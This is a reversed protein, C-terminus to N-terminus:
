STTVSVVGRASGITILATYTTATSMAADTVPLNGNSDTTLNTKRVVLAGTTPNYVDVTVNATTAWVVGANNALATLTFNATAVNSTTFQVGTSWAGNGNANIARFQITYTTNASLGSLVQPSASATFTTTGGNLTYQISTQDSASYTYPVSATSSTVTITDVTFTGQPVQPAASTTFNQATSWTGNGTANVARVQITYATSSILGSLAIPSTGSPVTVPNATGNLSYQFGTQDSESYTFPVSASNNTISTVTGVTVTGQPVQPTASTTFNTPTSWAGNGTANVARVEVTYTTSATLGTLNIPSAAIAEPTGGNIRYQFGTQDSASYTFPVTASQHTLASVSGMTVTGQPVQPVPPELLAFTNNAGLSNHLDSIEQATLVKNFQVFYVYKAATGGFSGSPYGGILKGAATSDGANGVNSNASAEVAGNVFAAWNTSSNVFGGFSCAGANILNTTGVQSTSGGSAGILKVQGGTTLGVSWAADTGALGAPIVFGRTGVVSDVNNVVVFMTQERSSTTKTAIGPALTVGRANNSLINTVFHRGYSGTGTTVSADPTCTQAGKLDKIVGDDDVCIFATINSFLPHDTKLQMPM